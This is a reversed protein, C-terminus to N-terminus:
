RNRVPAAASIHLKGRDHNRAIACFSDPFCGKKAASAKKRLWPCDEIILCFHRQPLIVLGLPCKFAQPKRRNGGVERRPNRAFQMMLIGPWSPRSIRHQALRQPMATPKTLDNSDCFKCFQFYLLKAACPVLFVSPQQLLEKSLGSTDRKSLANSDSSIASKACCIKVGPLGPKM